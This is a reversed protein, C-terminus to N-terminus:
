NQRLNPKLLAHCLEPREQLLDDFHQQLWICAALTARQVQVQKVLVFPDFAQYGHNPDFM